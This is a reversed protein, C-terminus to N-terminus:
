ERSHSTSLASHQTDKGTGEASLVTREASLVEEGPAPPPIRVRMLQNRLGAGRGPQAVGARFRNRIELGPNQLATLSECDTLEVNAIRM